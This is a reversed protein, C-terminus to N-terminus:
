GCKLREKLASVGISWLAAPDEGIQRYFEANTRSSWGRTIAEKHNGLDHWKSAIRMAGVNDGDRLMGLVKEKATKM